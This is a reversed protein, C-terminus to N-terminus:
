EGEVEEPKEPLPTWFLVDSTVDWREGDCSSWSPNVQMFDDSRDEYVAVEMSGGRYYVLVPESTLWGYEGEHMEPPNNASVWESM